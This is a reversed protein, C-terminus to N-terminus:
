WGGDELSSAPFSWERNGATTVTGLASSANSTNSCIEKWHLVDDFDVNRWEFRSFVM